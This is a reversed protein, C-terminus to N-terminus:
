NSTVGGMALFNHRLLPGGMWGGGANLVKTREM